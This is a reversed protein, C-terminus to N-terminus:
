SASGSRMSCTAAFLNTLAVTGISQTAKTAKREICTLTFGRVRSAKTKSLPNTDAGTFFPAM